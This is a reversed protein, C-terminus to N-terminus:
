DNQTKKNFKPILGTKQKLRNIMSSSNEDVSMPTIVIFGQQLYHDDYKTNPDIPNGTVEVAWITTKDAAHPEEGYIKRFGILEPKDYSIRREVLRVGKIKEFPLRPFGVTLYSHKEMGDIFGSSILEKIWGPIVSFSPEYDDDFGSLAIAKVGLFASTRAAGITGSRFWAPGINPGSNIGSLVLDPRDDGFFGGLGLLICDAPYSPLTYVAINNENDLYECTVEFTSQYKGYATYNSTGSRDFVSVIISVRDAVDKVSKALAILRDSDEIGDDNTILIHDFRSQGNALSGCLLFVIILFFKKM